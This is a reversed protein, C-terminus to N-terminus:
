TEVKMTSLCNSLRKVIYAGPMTIRGKSRYVDDILKPLTDGFGPNNKWKMITIYDDTKVLPKLEEEIRFLAKSKCTIKKQKELDIQFRKQMSFREVIIYPKWDLKNVM